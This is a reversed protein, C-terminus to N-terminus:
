HLSPFQFQPKAESFSEQRVPEQWRFDAETEAAELLSFKKELALQRSRVQDLDNKWCEIEIEHDELIRENEQEFRLRNDNITTNLKKTSEAAIKNSFQLDQILNDREKLTLTLRNIIDNAEAFESIVKEHEIKLCKIEQEQRQNDFILKQLSINVM